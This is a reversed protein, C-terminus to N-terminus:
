NGKVANVVKRYRSRTENYAALVKEDLETFGLWYGWFRKHTEKVWLWFVQLHKM